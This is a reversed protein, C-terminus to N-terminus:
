DELNLLDFLANELAHLRASVIDEFSDNDNWAQSINYKLAELIKKKKESM